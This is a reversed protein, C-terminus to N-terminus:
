LILKYEHASILFLKEVDMGLQSVMEENQLSFLGAVGCSSSLERPVPRLEVSIGMDKMISKFKLAGSHTYFTAIYDM